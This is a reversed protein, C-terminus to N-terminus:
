NNQKAALDHMQEILLTGIIIVQEFEDIDCKLYPYGNTYTLASKKLVFNGRFLKDYEIFKQKIEPKLVRNIYNETNCTINCVENFPAYETPKEWSSRRFRDDKRPVIKVFLSSDIDPCSIKVITKAYRNSPSDAVTYMDLYHRNKGVYGEIYSTQYDPSKVKIGTDLRNVLLQLANANHNNCTCLSLIILFYFLIGVITTKRIARGTVKGNRTRNTKNKLM